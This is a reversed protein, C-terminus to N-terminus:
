LSVSPVFAISWVRQKYATLARTRAAFRVEPYTIEATVAAAAFFLSCHRQLLLAPRWRHGAAAGRGAHALADQRPESLRSRM